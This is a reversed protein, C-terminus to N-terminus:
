DNRWITLGDRGLTRSTVLRGRIQPARLGRGLPRPGTFVRAEDWIGSTLFGELTRAGGEVILSMVGREHLQRCIGPLFGTGTEVSIYELNPGNAGPKGIASVCLTPVTGDLLYTSRPVRNGPDLLIRLPNPGEWDRSTLRPNDAEATRWGVLIASEETRWKHVLQRSESGTIWYPVRKKGRAIPDPALFGDPSQAWKLIIYPRKERHFVLFRRHHERCAAEQVGVVVDLGADRLRAIGSGAVKEHPDQIGIVVRPIGSELILETCPPTKGFHNCPELTVYLTADKLMGPDRVSRIANVEAHPGGYASTYGSGIITDGSALLAGVMPNPASRGLANKALQICRLM